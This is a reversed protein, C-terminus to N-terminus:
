GANRVLQGSSRANGQPLRNDRRINGVGPAGQQPNNGAGPPPGLSRMLIRTIEPINQWSMEELMRKVILKSIIMYSLDNQAYPYIVKLMNTLENLVKSKKIDRTSAEPVIDPMVAITAADVFLQLSQAQKDLILRAMEPDLFQQNLRIMKRTMPIVGYMEITRVPDQFAKDLEERATNIETATDEGPMLNGSKIDPNRSLRAIRAIGFNLMNYVDRGLTAKRPEYIATEPDADPKVGIFGGPPNRLDRPNLLLDPRVATLGKVTRATHTLALNFSVNVGHIQPLNKAVVGYGYLQGPIHEMKTWVYSSENTVLPTEELRIVEDNAMTIIARRPPEDLNFRFWGEWECTLIGDPQTRLDRGFGLLDRQEMMVNNDTKLFHLIPPTKDNIRKVADPFYLESRAGAEFHDYGKNYTSAIPYHDEIDVKHQDPFVDQLFVEEFWPGRYSVVPEWRITGDPNLVPRGNVMIPSRVVKQVWWLKFVASGYVVISTIASDWKREYDNYEYQAQIQNDWSLAANTDEPVNRGRLACFPKRSFMRAKIDQRYTTCIEAGHGTPLRTGTRTPLDPPLNAYHKFFEIFQKRVGRYAHFSNLITYYVQQKARKIRDESDFWRFPEGEYLSSAEPPIAPNTTDQLEAM